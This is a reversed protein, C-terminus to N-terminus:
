PLIFIRVLNPYWVLHNTDYSAIGIDVHQNQLNTLLRQAINPALENLGVVSPQGDLSLWGKVYDALEGVQIDQHKAFSNSANMGVNFATAGLMSADASAKLRMAM